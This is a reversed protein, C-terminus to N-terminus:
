QETVKDREAKLAQELMAVEDKSITADGTLPKFVAEGKTDKVTPAATGKKVLEWNIKIKEVKHKAVSHQGEVSYKVKLSDFKDSHDKVIKGLTRINSEFPMMHTNVDRTGVVLNSGDTEGGLSAGQVHLWEWKSQKWDPIGALMAYASANTGFMARIQGDGRGKGAPATKYVKNTSTVLPTLNKELKALKTSNNPQKAVNKNLIPNSAKEPLKKTVKYVKKNLKAGNLSIGDTWTNDEQYGTAPTESTFMWHARGKASFGGENLPFNAKMTKVFKLIGKHQNFIDNMRTQATIPSAGDDTKRRKRSSLQSPDTYLKVFEQTYNDINAAWDDLEMELDDVANVDEDDIDAEDANLAERLQDIHDYADEVTSMWNVSRGIAHISRIMANYQHDTTRVAYQMQRVPEAVAMQVPKATQGPAEPGATRLAREGMATAETELAPDDNIGFGQDQRTAKVRGQMQQVVHWAEHPLHKEQGPAVHIDTGQAYALASLESPKSSNYHVKVHDLSMGSLSEIGTKLQDPLGTRNPVAPAEKLQMASERREDASRPAAVSAGVLQAVARNGITEQLQLLENERLTGNRASIPASFAYSPKEMAAGRQASASSKRESVSQSGTLGVSQREM